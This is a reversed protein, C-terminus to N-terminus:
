AYWSIKGSRLTQTRKQEQDLFAQTRHSVDRKITDAHPFIITQKNHVKARVSCVEVHAVDQIGILFPDIYERRLDEFHWTHVHDREPRETVLSFTLRYSLDLGHFQRNRNHTWKMLELRVDQTKDCSSQLWAHRYRGITTTTITSTRTSSLHVFMISDQVSPDIERRLAEDVNEDSLSTDELIDVINKKCLGNKSEIDDHNCYIINLDSMTERFDEDCDNAYAVVVNDMKMEDVRIADLVTKEPLNAREVISLWYGLPIVIIYQFLYILYSVQYSNM